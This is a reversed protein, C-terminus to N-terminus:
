SPCGREQRGKTTLYGMKAFYDGFLAVEAINRKQELSALHVIAEDVALVFFALLEPDLKRVLGEEMGKKLEEILLESMERCMKRLKEKAWQDNVAAGARLQNMIEGIKPYNDFYVQFMIVARKAIDKEKSLAAALEKKVTTIVHEIMEVFLERKDPFYSYISSASVGTEEAIDRLSTSYFGREQYLRLATEIIQKKRQGRYGSTAKSLNESLKGAGTEHLERKIVFLPVRQKKHLKKIKQIESLRALHTEDYYAMTQGTKSPPHLVGERLYHHITTRSVGSIRELDAIRMKLDEEM